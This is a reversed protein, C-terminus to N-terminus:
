TRSVSQASVFIDFVHAMELGVSMSISNQATEMHAHGFVYM